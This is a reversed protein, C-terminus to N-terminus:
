EISFVTAVWILTGPEVHLWRYRHAILVLNRARWLLRPM